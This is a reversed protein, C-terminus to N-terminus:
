VFIRINTLCMVSNNVRFYGFNHFLFESTENATVNIFSLVRGLETGLAACFCFFEYFDLFVGFAKGTLM